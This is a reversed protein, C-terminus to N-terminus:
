DVYAQTLRWCGVLLESKSSDALSYKQRITTDLSPHRDGQVVPVLEGRDRRDRNEYKGEM